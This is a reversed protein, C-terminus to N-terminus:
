ADASVSVMTKQKQRTNQSHLGEVFLCFDVDPAATQCLDLLRLLFVRLRQFGDLLYQRRFSGSAEPLRFMWFLSSDSDASVNGELKGGLSRKIIM